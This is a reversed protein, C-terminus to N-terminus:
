PMDQAQTEAYRPSLLVVGNAIRLPWYHEDIEIAIGGLRRIILGSLIATMVFAVLNLGRGIMLVDGFIPKLSAVLYFSLFPYNVLRAPDGTYLPEGAAVRAAHYANWGENYIKEIDFGITAIPVAVSILGLIFIFIVAGDILPEAWGTRDIRVNAHSLSSLDTAKKRRYSPLLNRRRSGTAAM